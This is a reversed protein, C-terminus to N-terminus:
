QQRSRCARKVQPKERFSSNEGATRGGMLAQKRISVSVQSQDAALFTDLREAGEAALGRFFWYPWVAACIWM